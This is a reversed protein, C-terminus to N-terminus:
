TRYMFRVRYGDPGAINNNLNPYNQVYGATNNDLNYYYQVYSGYPEYGTAIVDQLIIIQTIITSYMVEMHYM